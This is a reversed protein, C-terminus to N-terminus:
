KNVEAIAEKTIVARDDVYLVAPVGKDNVQSLDVVALYGRSKYFPALKERIETMLNARIRRNQEEWRRKQAENFTSIREELSRLEVVKADMHTRINRVDAETVNEELIQARLKKIENQLIDFQTAMIVRERNIGDLLSNLQDNALKTKFFNTFVQEYDVFAIAGRPSQAIAATGCLLLLALLLGLGPQTKARKSLKGALRNFKHM